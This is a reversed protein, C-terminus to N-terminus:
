MKEYLTKLYIYLVLQPVASFGFRVQIIGIKAWEDQEVWIVCLFHYISASFYIM